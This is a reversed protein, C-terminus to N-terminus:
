PSVPNSWPSSIAVSASEKFLVFLGISRWDNILFIRYRDIGCELFIRLGRGISYNNMQMAPYNWKRGAVVNGIVRLIRTRKIENKLVASVASRRDMACTFHIAIEEGIKTPIHQLVIYTHVFDYSEADLYEGSTSSSYTVNDIGYTTVNASAQALMGPSIDLGVVIDFHPALAKTIRGVGCGFDLAKGRPAFGFDAKLADLVYDVHQVGTAFFEDRGPGDIKDLKFKPNSLVGYYPDLNGLTKWDDEAAFEDLRGCQHARSPTQESRRATREPTLNERV